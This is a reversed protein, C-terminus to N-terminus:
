IRQRVNNSIKVFHFIKKLKTEIAKKLEFPNLTKFRRKLLAKMKKDVYDSEILRQYPTKPEYYKRRYKSNVKIKTELQMSPYFYNVLLSWENKYLDNMMAVLCPSDFRDYGFLHRVHTWNKQEVHANDNKRYPRSRTVQVANKEREKLYRILHWNLFESGNDCDFGRLIFPLNCEIDKIQETVGEAGKNWTARIETWCSNIDTLTISWVFDGATSNGCHAVTDAEIFGPQTVDWHDTKIEIQNKLLRGPKTGSLGHRKTKIKVSKLLRDITAPSMALLQSKIKKPLPESTSEYFPLWLPIAHKLRKGCMLDTALWIEKLPMLLVDSVYNTKRGTRQKKPKDIQNLRRVVSKRHLGYEECLRDLIQTKLSRRKSYIYVRQLQDIPHLKKPRKKM